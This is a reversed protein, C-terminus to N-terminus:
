CRFRRPYWIRGPNLTTYRERLSPQRHAESYGLWFVNSGNPNWSARVGPQFGSGTLDNEEFKSGISLVIEDSLNISDQVYATFRNFKVARIMNSNSAIHAISYLNIILFQLSLFPEFTNGVDLQDQSLWYSHYANPIALRDTQMSHWIMNTQKWEFGLHGM